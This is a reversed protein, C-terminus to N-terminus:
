SVGACMRMPTQGYTSVANPNAGANLLVEVQLWARRTLAHWVSWSGPMSFASLLRHSSRCPQAPPFVTPLSRSEIAHFVPTEGNSDLADVNAGYQFLLQCLRDFGKSAARHLPTQQAGDAQNPDAKLQCQVCVCRTLFPRVGLVRM